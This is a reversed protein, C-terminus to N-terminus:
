LGGRVVHEVKAGGTAEGGRSMVICERAREVRAEEDDRLRRDNADCASVREGRRPGGVAEADNRVGGAGSV